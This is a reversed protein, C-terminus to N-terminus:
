KVRPLFALARNEVTVVLRNLAVGVIGIIFTGAIIQDVLYDTRGSVLTDSIGKTSFSRLLFEAGVVGLWAYITGLQIGVFIQPSAAPLLFKLWYNVSSLGFVRAAEYFRKDIARVGLFTNLAVPFFCALAIFIIKSLEGYGFYVSLLPVWAFLSIQRLANFTPEFLQNMVSYRAIAIGFLVGFFGGIVLGSFLRILSNLIGLWFDSLAFLQVLYSIIQSPSVWQSVDILGTIYAVEWVILLAVPVVLSYIYHAFTNNM